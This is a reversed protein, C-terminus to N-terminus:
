LDKPDLPKQLWQISIKNLSGDAKMKAITDNLSQKLAPENKNLAIHDPSSLLQFKQEPEITPHRALVSAGVDNGVAIMQVQGALFASIVGNYNDFRKIDADKPAAETLSSDELTGRNVGITKGALDAATTVKMAHPGLVAIYYPAYSQTFDIVKEREPSQGVSLLIDVKHEQLYPIRNQGTIGVLALKVGLSKALANAVDIDYGHLSMDSGASAFPPFDEFVGVKLVGAKHIDDLADARATGLTLGTFACGLLLAAALRRTM